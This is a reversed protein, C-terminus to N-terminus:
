ELIKAPKDTPPVEFWTKGPKLYVPDGNQDTFKPPTNADAEWTCEIVRGDRFILAKGTGGLTCDYTPNGAPDKMRAVTYKATMVAVTDCSLQEGTVSDKHAKGAQERLWVGKAEDWKWTVTSYNAYPITVGIVPKFLAAQTESVEGFALPKITDLTTALKRKEAAAYAEGLKLYLNHPARASSSRYYIGQAYTVGINAISVRKLGADVESNSGSYMFLADYQPVIWVDSLRASRVNGVEQPIESQYICNLRTEGGEVMTEYVIDAKSVNMQPRSVESNEIKVSLPRRTIATPDVSPLGTYPWILPKDEPPAPIAAVPAEPPKEAEEKDKCGSLGALALAAILLAVLAPLAYNKKIAM